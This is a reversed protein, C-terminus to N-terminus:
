YAAIWSTDTTTIAGPALWVGQSFLSIPRVAAPIPLSNMFSTPSLFTVLDPTPVLSCPLVVPSNPWAYNGLYVPQTQLGFVAFMSGALVNSTGYDVGGDFRPTLFYPATTCGSALPQVLTDASRMTISFQLQSAGPVALELGLRCRIPVPTPGVQVTTALTQQTFETLEFSGDDLVDILTTPTASGAVASSAVTADFTILIPTPYSVLLVVDLPAMSASGVGSVFCDANLNVGHHTAGGTNVWSFHSLGNDTAGGASATLAGLGGLPGPPIGTNQALGGGAAILTSGGSDLTVTLNQASLSAALLLAAVTAVPHDM